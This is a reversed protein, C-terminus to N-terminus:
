CFNTGPINKPLYLRSTCLISSKVVMHWSDIFEPIRLRRSGEPGTCAQMLIAKGLMNAFCVKKCSHLKLHRIVAGHLLIERTDPPLGSTSCDLFSSSSAFCSKLEVKLPLYEIKMLLTQEKPANAFNRFTVTPKDRGDTWWAMRKDAHFLKAGGPCIEM